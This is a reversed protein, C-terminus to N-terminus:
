AIVKLIQVRRPSTVGARRKRNPCSPKLNVKGLPFGRLPCTAAFLHILNKVPNRADIWEPSCLYLKPTIPM